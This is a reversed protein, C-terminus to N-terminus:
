DEYDFFVAINRENYKKSLKRMFYAIDAGSAEHDKDEADALRSKTTLRYTPRLERQRSFTFYIARDEGM